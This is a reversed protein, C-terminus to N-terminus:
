AALPVARAICGPAASLAANLVLNTAFLVVGGLVLLFGVYSNSGNLYWSKPESTDSPSYLVTPFRIPNRRLLPSNM